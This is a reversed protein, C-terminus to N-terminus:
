PIDGKGDSKRRPAVERGIWELYDPNGEMVPLALIEAVEYPHLERITRELEGYLDVTSKMVCLWEEAEEIEGKWWYRSVVPGLIQFCAALRRQLVEGAIKEAADKRDITTIVQIYERM